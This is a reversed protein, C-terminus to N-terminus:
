FFYTLQVKFSNSKAEGEPVNWNEGTTTDLISKGLKSIGFNYVVGLDLHGFLKAGAGINWSATFDERSFQNDYWKSAGLNVDFQPGTAAYLNVMQGLGLSYKLNLPISFTRLTESDCYYNDGNNNINMKNQEYILAGDLGFGMAIGVNAKLGVFWGSRNDSNFLKEADGDLKLKTLSYGGTVGWDFSFAQATTAFGMSVFLALTLIIKKMNHIKNFYYNSM